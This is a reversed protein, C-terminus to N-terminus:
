KMNADIIPNQIGKHKKIPAKSKKASMIAMPDFMANFSTGKDKSPLKTLFTIGDENM